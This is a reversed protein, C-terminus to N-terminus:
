GIQMIGVWKRQDLENPGVLKGLSLGDKPGKWTM